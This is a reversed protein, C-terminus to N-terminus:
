WEGCERVRDALDKRNKDSNRKVSAHRGSGVRALLALAIVVRNRPKIAPLAITKARM